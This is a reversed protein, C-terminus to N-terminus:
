LVSIFSRSTIVPCYDCNMYRVSFRFHSRLDYSFDTIITILTANPAGVTMGIQLTELKEFPM